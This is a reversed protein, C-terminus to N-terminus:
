EWASPTSKVLYLVDDPQARLGRHLFPRHLLGLFFYCDLHILHTMAGERESGAHSQVASDGAMRLFGVPLEALLFHQAFCIQHFLTVM